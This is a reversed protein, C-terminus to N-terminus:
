TLVHIQTQNKMRYMVPYLTKRCEEIERPFQERVKIKSDPNSNLDMGTKRVVERDTYREFKAVIPRLNNRHRKRRGLRHVRDFKIRGETQQDVKLVHVLFDRLINETNEAPQDRESGSDESQRTNVEPEDIGFFM